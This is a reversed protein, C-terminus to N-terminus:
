PLPSVNVPGATNVVVFAEEESNKRGGPTNREFGSEVVLIIM